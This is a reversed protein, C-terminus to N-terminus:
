VPPNPPPAIGAGMEEGGKCSRKEGGSVEYFGHLTAPHLTGLYFPRLSKVLFPLMTVHYCFQSHESVLL